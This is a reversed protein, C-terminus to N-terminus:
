ARQGPQELRQCGRRAGRAAQVLLLDGFDDLHRAQGIHQALRVTCFLL